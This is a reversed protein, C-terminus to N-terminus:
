SFKSSAAFSACKPALIRWGQQMRGALSLLIGTRRNFEKSGDAGPVSMELVASFPRILATAALSSM